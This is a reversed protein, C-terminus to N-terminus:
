TTACTDLKNYTDSVHHIRHWISGNSNSLKWHCSFHTIPYLCLSWEGMNDNNRPGFTGVSMEASCRSGFLPKSESTEIRMKTDDTLWWHTMPTDDTNCRQTMYRGDEWMWRGGRSYNGTNYGSCNVAACKNWQKLGSRIEWVHLIQFHRNLKLVPTLISTPGFLM